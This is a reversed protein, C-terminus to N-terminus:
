YPRTPESIHILSLFLAANVYAWSTMGSNSTYSNDTIHEMTGVSMAGDRRMPSHTHGHIVKMSSKSFSAVSGRAGNIGDHGHIHLAVGNRIFTEGFELTKFRKHRVITRLYDAMLNVNKLRTGGRLLDVTRKVCWLMLDIDNYADQWANNLVWSKLMLDHNSPVMVPTVYGPLSNVFDAGISISQTLTSINGHAEAEFFELMGVKSHHNNVAVSVLDHLMVFKPRYQRIQRLAAIKADISQTEAHVDGLVITDVSEKRLCKATHLGDVDYIGDLHKNYTLQRASTRKTEPNYEILVCGLVHNDKARVGADTSSYEPM